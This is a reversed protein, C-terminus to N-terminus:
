KLPNSIPLVYGSSGLIWPDLWTGVYASLIDRYQQESVAANACSLIHWASLIAKQEQIPLDFFSNYEQEELMDAIQAVDKIFADVASASGQEMSMYLDLLHASARQLAAVDGDFVGDGSRLIMNNCESVWLSSPPTFYGNHGGCGTTCLALLAVAIFIYCLRRKM